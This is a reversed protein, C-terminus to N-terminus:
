KLKFARIRDDYQAADALDKGAARAHVLRAREPCPLPFAAGLRTGAALGDVPLDVAPPLAVAPESGWRDASSRLGAAARM